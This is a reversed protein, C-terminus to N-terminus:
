LIDICIKVAINHKDLHFINDSKESRYFYPYFAADSLSYLCNVSIFFMESVSLGVVFPLSINSQHNLSLMCCFISLALTQVKLMVDNISVVEKAEELSLQANFLEYLWSSIM